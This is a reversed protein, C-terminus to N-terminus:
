RINGPRWTRVINGHLFRESLLVLLGLINGAALLVLIPMITELSVVINSPETNPQTSYIYLQRIRFQVGSERLQALRFLLNIRTLIYLPLPMILNNIFINSSTRYMKREMTIDMWKDMWGNLLINILCFKRGFV